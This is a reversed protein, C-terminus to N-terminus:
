GALPQRQYSGALLSILLSQSNLPQQFLWSCLWVPLRVAVELVQRPGASWVKFLCQCVGLQPTAPLNCPVAM